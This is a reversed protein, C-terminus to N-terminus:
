ELQRCPVPDGQVLGTHLSRDTTGSDSVEEFIVFHLSTGPPMAAPHITFVRGSGDSRQGGLPMVETLQPLAPQDDECGVVRANAGVSKFEVLAPVGAKKLAASLEEPHTLQRITLVVSGGPLTDVSWAALEMPAPPKSAPGTRLAPVVGAALAATLGVAAVATAARRRRRLKRGRAAIDELPHRLRMPEFEDRVLTYLDESSM